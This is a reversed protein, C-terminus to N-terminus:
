LFSKIFFAYLANVKYKRYSIKSFSDALSACAGFVALCLCFVKYFNKLFTSAFDFTIDSTYIFYNAFWEKIVNQKYGACIIFEDIGYAHYGKMIHWLIPMGGIEVM